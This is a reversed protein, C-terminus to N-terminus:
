YLLSMPYLPLVATSRRMIWLLHTESRKRWTSKETQSIISNEVNRGDKSNGIIIPIMKTKIRLLIGKM